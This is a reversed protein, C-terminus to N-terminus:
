NVRYTSEERPYIDNHSFNTGPKLAKISFTPVELGELQAFSSYFWVLLCDLIVGCLISELVDDKEFARSDPGM